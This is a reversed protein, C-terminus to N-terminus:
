CAPLEPLPHITDIFGASSLASATNNDVRKHSLHGKVEIGCMAVKTLTESETLFKFFSSVAPTASSAITKCKTPLLQTMRVNHILQTLVLRTGHCNRRLHGNMSEFGLLQLVM